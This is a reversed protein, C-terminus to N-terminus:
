CTSGVLHPSICGCCTGLSGTPTVRGELTAWFRQPIEAVAPAAVRGHAVQDLNVEQDKSGGVSDESESSVEVSADFTSTDEASVGDTHEGRWVFPKALEKVFGAHVIAVEMNSESDSDPVEGIDKAEQSEPVTTASAPEEMPDDAKGALDWRLLRSQCEIIDLRLMRALADLAGIVKDWIHRARDDALQQERCEAAKKRAVPLPTAFRSSSLRSSTGGIRNDDVTQPMLMDPLLRAVSSVWRWGYHGAFM